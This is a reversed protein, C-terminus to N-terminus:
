LGHPEETWPSEGPSYVPTPQWARRWPIKGVWHNFGPRRRIQWMISHSQPRYHLFFLTFSPLYTIEGFCGVAGQKWHVDLHQSYHFISTILLQPHNIWLYEARSYSFYSVSRLLYLLSQGDLCSSKLVQKFYNQVFPVSVEERTNILVRVYHITSAM